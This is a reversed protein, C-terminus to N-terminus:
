FDKDNANVLRWNLIAATLIKQFLPIVKAVQEDSVSDKINRLRRPKDPKDACFIEVCQM